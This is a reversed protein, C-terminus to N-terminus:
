SKEDEGWIDDFFDYLRKYEGLGDEQEFLWIFYPSAMTAIKIAEDVTPFHELGLREWGGTMNALFRYCVKYIDNAEFDDEILRESPYQKVGNVLSFCSSNDGITVSEERLVKAIEKMDVMICLFHCIELLFM